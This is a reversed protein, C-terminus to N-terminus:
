INSYVNFEAREQLEGLVYLECVVVGIRKTAYSWKIKHKEQFSPKIKEGDVLLLANNYIDVYDNEYLFHQNFGLKVSDSFYRFSKFEPIKIISVVTRDFKLDKTKESSGVLIPLFTKSALIKAQDMQKESPCYIARDM